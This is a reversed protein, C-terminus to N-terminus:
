EYQVSVGVDPVIEIWTTGPTYAVEAGNDYFLRLIGQVNEWHVAYAKGQMFLYGKGGTTVNVALRGEKDLVRHKAFLVVVNTTYLTEGTTLDTHPTKGIYRDYRKSGEDYKYVVKYNANYPIEVSQARDGGVPPAGDLFHFTPPVSQTRYKKKEIMAFLHDLDTYLNHPAKRLNSRWFYPDAAGDNVANLSPLGQAAIIKLAETSGGAHAMIADYGQGLELFYPRISRVPGITDPVKSQYFAAFRTIGGEVLVEYVIDAQDLGSQPRAAPSNEVMVMVIRRDTPMDSPLGTLPAIYPLDAEPNKEIHEDPNEEGTHVVQEEANSDTQPNTTEDTKKQCGSLMVILLVAIWIVWVFGRKRGTHM